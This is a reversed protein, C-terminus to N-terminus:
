QEEETREAHTVISIGLWEALETSIDWEYEYIRDLGGEELYKQYGNKHIYSLHSMVVQHMAGTIGGQSLYDDSFWIEELEKLGEGTNLVGYVNKYSWTGKWVDLPKDHIWELGMWLMRQCASEYLMGSINLSKVKM